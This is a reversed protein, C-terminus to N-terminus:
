QAGELQTTRPPPNSRPHPRHIRGPTGRSIRGGTSGVGPLDSGRHIGGGTVAAPPQEAAVARKPPVLVTVRAGNRADGGQGDDVRDLLGRRCLSRRAREYQRLDAGDPLALLKRLRKPGPFALGAADAHRHYITWLQLETRSLEALWGGDVLSNLRRHSAAGAGCNVADGTAPPPKFTTTEQRM